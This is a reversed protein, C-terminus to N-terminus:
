ELLLKIGMDKLGDIEDKDWGGNPIHLAKLKPLEFLYKLSGDLPRVTPLSLYELSPIRSFPSISPVTLPSNSYFKMSVISHMENSEFCEFYSDIKRTLGLEVVRLRKMTTIPELTRSGSLQTACLYELETLKSINSIDPAGLRGFCLRKLWHMNCIADFFHQGNNGTWSVLYEINRAEQLFEAWKKRDGSGFGLFIGAVEQIAASNIEIDAAIQDKVSWFNWLGILDVPVGSFTEVPDEVPM